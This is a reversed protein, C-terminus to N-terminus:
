LAVKRFFRALSDLIDSNCCAGMFYIFTYIYTWLRRQAFNFLSWILIRFCKEELSCWQILCTVKSFIPWAHLCNWSLTVFEERYKSFLYFPVVDTEHGITAAERGAPLMLYRSLLSGKPHKVTRYLADAFVLYFKLPLHDLNREKRLNGPFLTDFWLFKGM